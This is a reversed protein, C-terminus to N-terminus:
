AEVDRYKTANTCTLVFWLANMVNKKEEKNKQGGNNEIVKLLEPILCM